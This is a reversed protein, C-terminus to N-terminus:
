TLTNIIIMLHGNYMRVESLFYFDECHRIRKPLSEAYKSKPKDDKQKILQTFM